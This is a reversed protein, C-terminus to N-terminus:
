RSMVPEIKEIEIISARCQPLNTLSRTSPCSTEQSAPFLYICINADRNAGDSTSAVRSRKKVRNMEIRREREKHRVREREREKERKIEALRASILASSLACM